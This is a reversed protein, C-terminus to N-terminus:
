SQLRKMRLSMKNMAQEVKLFTNKTRKWYTRSDVDGELKIREARKVLKDMKRLESIVTKMHVGIKQHPKMDEFEVMAENLIEQVSFSDDYDQLETTLKYLSPTETRKM